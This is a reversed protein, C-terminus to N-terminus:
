DTLEVTKHRDTIERAQLGKQGQSKQLNLGEINRQDKLLFQGMGVKLSTLRLPKVGM